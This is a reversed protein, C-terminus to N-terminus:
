LLSAAGIALLVAVLVAMPLWAKWAGRVQHPPYDDPWRGAEAARTLLRLSVPIRALKRGDPTYPWATEIFPPENANYHFYPLFGALDVGFRESLALMFEDADDGAVGLATLLCEDDDGTFKAGAFQTALAAIDDRRVM